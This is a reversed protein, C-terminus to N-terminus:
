SKTTAMSKGKKSRPQALLLGGFGEILCEVMFPSTVITSAAAVIALASIAFHLFRSPLRYTPGVGGSSQTGTPLTRGLVPPSAPEDHFGPSNKAVGVGAGGASSAALAAASAALSFSSSRRLSIVATAIWLM